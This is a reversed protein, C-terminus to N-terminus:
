PRTRNTQSQINSFLIEATSTGADCTIPITTTRGALSVMPGFSSGLTKKPRGMPGWWKPSPSSTRHSSRSSSRRSLRWAIITTSKGAGEIATKFVQELRVQANNIKKLYEITSARMQESWPILGKEAFDMREKEIIPIEAPEDDGHQKSRFKTIQTEFQKDLNRNAKEAAGAYAMEAKIIAPDSLGGDPNAALAPAASLDTFRIDKIRIERSPQNGEMRFAIVGEDPVSDYKGRIMTAGNVKIVVVKGECRIHFHNLGPKIYKTALASKPRVDLKSALDSVLSGAPHEGEAARGGIVCRPGVVTFQAADKVRSRFQIGATGIGEPLLARFKLDFDRYTKKSVLFVVAGDNARPTGVIAKDAARWCGSLGDWGSLDKGNFFARSSVAAATENTKAVVKTPKSSPDVSRKADGDDRHGTTPAKVAVEGIRSSSASRDNPTASKELTPRPASDQPKPVDVARAVNPAIVSAAASQTAAGAATAPPTLIDDKQATSLSTETARSDLTSAVWGTIGMLGLVAGLIAAPWASRKISTPPFRTAPKEEIARRIPAKNSLGALRCRCDACAKVHARVKEASADTLAGAVFQVLLEDTAHEPSAM